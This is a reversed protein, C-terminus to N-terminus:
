EQQEVLVLLLSHHCGIRLELVRLHFSTSTRLRTM